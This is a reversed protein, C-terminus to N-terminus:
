RNYSTEKIADYVIEMRVPPPPTPINFDIVTLMEVVSKIPMGDYQRDIKLKDMYSYLFGQIGTALSYLSCLLIEYRVDKPRCFSSIFNLRDHIGRVFHDLGRSRNKTSIYLPKVDRALEVIGKLMYMNFELSSIENEIKKFENIFLKYYKDLMLSEKTEERLPLIILSQILDICHYDYKKFTTSTKSVKRLSLVLADTASKQTNKNWGSVWDIDLPGFINKCINRFVDIYKSKFGSKSRISKLEASVTVLFLKPDSIPDFRDSYFGVDTHGLSPWMPKGDMDKSYSFGFDIIVPYFGYTPITFEEGGPLIYHFIIKPNCRKIMINYSHLDYHTFQKKTQAIVLAALVQKIISFIVKEHIKKSKFLTYFKRSNKLNKMLLVDKEIPYKCKPEFPNENGPGLQKKPNKLKPDIDCCIIGIPRCFHICYPALDALSKMVSYEHPILNNIYRSVKFVYEKKSNKIQKFIGVMGQKSSCKFVNDFELWENWPLHRYEKYYPDM